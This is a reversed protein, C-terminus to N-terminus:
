LCDALKKALNKREFSALYEAMDADQADLGEPPNLFARYCRLIASKTENIDGPDVVIGKNYRNVIDALVGPPTFAIIHTRAAMYEYVKTPIWFSHPSFILLVDSTTMLEIAKLYPLHEAIETARSLGLKLVRDELSQNEFYGVDGAFRLKIGDLPIAYEKVLDAMAQLFVEPTRKAYFAGLYSITFKDNRRNLGAKSMAFDDSDVGNPICTFKEAPINPYLNMYGQKVMETVTIIIDANKFVKGELWRQMKFSFGNDKKMFLSWPDRFDVIWRCGTIKKLLLGTIQVSHPPSTTMITEIRYKKIIEVAKILAPVIWGTRDDPLWLLSLIFRKVKSLPRDELTIENEKRVDSSKPDRTRKKPLLSLLLEKIALYADRPSFLMRTRFVRCKIDRCRGEDKQPYYMENVSLVVPQWGWIPLYKSFKQMRLGGVESDPPFHYSIILITKM